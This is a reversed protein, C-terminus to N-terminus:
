IGGYHTRCTPPVFDSWAEFRTAAALWQEARRVDTARECASLLRCYIEGAPGVGVVEGSAVAAMAQDLLTMGETVRGAAVCAEGLLAMADFELDRDGYRRAIAIAATAFQERESADSTWPARDLMLWGHAASEEVGELTSEARAMWGNAAVVNGHVSVHLFALWRALEAAEARLGRREYEAFAREKVEIARAHEGGFQLAEGLGDLVEATEGLEAAQEFFSRAREWDAADLAGRGLRLLEDATAVGM